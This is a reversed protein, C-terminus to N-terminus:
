FLKVILDPLYEYALYGFGLFVVVYVAAAFYFAPMAGVFNYAREPHKIGNDKVFKESNAIQVAIPQDSDDPLLKSSM